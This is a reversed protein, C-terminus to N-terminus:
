ANRGTQQSLGLFLDKLPQILAGVAEIRLAIPAHEPEFRISYTFQACCNREALVLDLLSRAAEDSNEFLFVVGNDLERASTARSQVDYVSLRRDNRGSAPVTCVLAMASEVSPPAQPLSRFRGSM